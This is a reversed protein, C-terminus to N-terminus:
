VLRRADDLYVIVIAILRLELSIEDYVEGIVYTPLLGVETARVQTLRLAGYDDLLLVVKRSSQFFLDAHGLKFAVAVLNYWVELDTVAAKNLLEARVISELHPFNFYSM